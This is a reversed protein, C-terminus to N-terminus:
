ELRNEERDTVIGKNKGEAPSFLFRVRWTVLCFLREDGTM